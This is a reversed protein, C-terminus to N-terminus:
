HGNADGNGYNYGSKNKNKSEGAGKLNKANDLKTKQVVMIEHWRPENLFDRWGDCFTITIAGDVLKANFIIEVGM